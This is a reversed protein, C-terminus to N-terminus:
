GMHRYFVRYFAPIIYGNLGSLVWRTMVDLLRNLQPGGLSIVESLNSCATTLM